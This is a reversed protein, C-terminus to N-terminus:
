MNGMLKDKLVAACERVCFHVFLVPDSKAPIGKLDPVGWKQGLMRARFVHYNSTIVGIQLPKDEAVPKLNWYPQRKIQRAFAEKKKERDKEIELRSYAINEVTSTSTTELIMQERPVGNYALYEAMAQAEAVPEDAGKGGSLVLITDPSEELYEMARDLRKRLSGSLRSNERVKAGLVIVYDMNVARDTTVGMFIMCEVIGFVFAGTICITTVSVPIWLPVKKPYKKVYRGGGALLLFFAALFLWVASFSTAFGSYLVIVVYYVACVAASICFFLTM